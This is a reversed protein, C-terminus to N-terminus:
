RLNLAQQGPATLICRDSRDGITHWQEIACSSEGPQTEGFEGLRPMFPQLLQEFGGASIWGLRIRAVHGEADSRADVGGASHSMRSIRKGHEFCREVFLSCPLADVPEILQVQLAPTGHLYM